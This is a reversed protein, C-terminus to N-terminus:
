KSRTAVGAPTSPPVTMDNNMCFKNRWKLEEDKVRISEIACTVFAEFFELFTIEIDLDMIKNGKCLNPFIRSFIKIITKSSLNGFNFLKLNEIDQYIEFPEPLENDEAICLLTSNQIQKANLSLIFFIKFINNM